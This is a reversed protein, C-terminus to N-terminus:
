GLGQGKGHAQPLFPASARPLAATPGQLRPSLVGQVIVLIKAMVSAKM